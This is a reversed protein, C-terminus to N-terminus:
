FHIYVFFNINDDTAGDSVVEFVLLTLTRLIMIKIEIIELHSVSSEDEKEMFLRVPMQFLYELIRHDHQNLSIELYKIGHIWIEMKKM